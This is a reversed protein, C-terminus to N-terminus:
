ICDDMQNELKEKMEKSRKVASGVSEFVIKQLDKEDFKNLAAETTGGRSAVMKILDDANMEYKQMMEGAGTMTYTVLTEAVKRELGENVAADILYKCFLFFYAPGSGSIATVADQFEEDIVIFHGLSAMLKKAFEINEDAIYPGRSIAAMGKRIIAPTNPMIRIVPANTKLKNMIFGTPAGAVISIIVNQEPNFYPKLEDLLNSLDQPKISLLIYRSNEVLSQLNDAFMIEYKGSIYEKREQKIELACIESSKLLESDLVGKLIAEAMNGCGIIGLKYTFVRM